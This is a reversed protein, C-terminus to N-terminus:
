QHIREETRVFWLIRRRSFTRTLSFGAREIAARSSENKKMVGIFAKRVGADALDRLIQRLNRQYLGQRRYHPHTFFDYLVASDSPLTITARVGQLTHIQAGPAVWGYHLLKGNRCVSYLTEGSSFRRLAQSLLQRRSLWPDCEDYGLLDEYRQVAIEPDGAVEPAARVCDTVYQLYVANDYFIAVIRDFFKRPSVKRLRAGLGRVRSLIAWIDEPRVRMFNLAGKLKRMAFLGANAQLRATQSFHFSPQILEQWDNAVFEKYSDGGPTLDIRRFGEEKLMKALEILHVKGPSNRSETPDYATLGLLLTDGDCSGFHFSIPRGGSWLVTFHNAEPFEQREVFFPSKRPNDAFPRVGQIAEQRFDCQLRLRELLQQTRDKDRVRELFYGGRKKLRNIQNRISKTKVLQDYRSADELNWIPSREVRSTCYIGHDSLRRSTLFAAPSGPAIWKWTWRTPGIKEKIAILCEEAFANDITPVAVWGSYEAHIDGAHTIASGDRSRALAMLGVLRGARDHGLCAIPEFLEEHQRYWSIAFAPEQLLTFKPDQAALGKWQSVFLGDSILPLVHLGIQITLDFDM